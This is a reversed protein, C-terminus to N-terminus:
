AAGRHSAHEAAALEALARFMWAQVWRLYPLRNVRERHRLYHFSGDPAHMEALAWAGLARARDLARPIRDRFHLLTLIAHAVAHMDVPYPRGPRHAVAPPVLFTGTWYELGRRVAEKPEDTALARALEDLSILLYGTHFSDVWGNRAGAGYPWSGDSRQAALTFRAAALATEGWDSRGLRRALRALLAAALVSANHVARRDLPTYSFCFSGHDGEVRALRRTVFEGAGALVDERVRAGRTDAAVLAGGVFATVVANPTGAPVRTDRNTWAFPYGWGGGSARADELRTVLEQVSGAYTSTLGLRGELVLAVAKPNELRPVGLLPRLQLPSRRLLQTWAIEGTRTGLTLARVLPSALADYPDWGQFDRMSIWRDLRLAAESWGTGGLPPAEIV